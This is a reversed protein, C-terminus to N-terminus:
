TSFWITYSFLVILQIRINNPVLRMIWHLTPIKTKHDGENTSTMLQITVYNPAGTKSWKPITISHDHKYNGTKWSRAKKPVKNKTPQINKSKQIPEHDTDNITTINSPEHYKTEL